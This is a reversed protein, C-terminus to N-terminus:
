DWDSYFGRKRGRESYRKRRMLSLTGRRSSYRGLKSQTTKKREEEPVDKKIRELIKEIKSSSKEKFDRIFTRIREIIEDLDDNFDEIEDQIRDSLDRFGDLVEYIMSMITVDESKAKEISRKVSKITAYIFYIGALGLFFGMIFTLGILAKIKITIVAVSALFSLIFTLGTAIASAIVARPVLYTVISVIFKALFTFFAKVGGGIKKLIKSLGSEEVVEEPIAGEKRAKIVNELSEVATQVALSKYEGLENASITYLRGRALDSFLRSYNTKGKLAAEIEKEIEEELKELKNTEGEEEVEKEAKEIAEDIDELSEALVDFAEKAEETLEEESYFRGYSENRAYRSYRFPSLKARHFDRSFKHPRKRYHM